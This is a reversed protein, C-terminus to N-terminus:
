AAGDRFPGQRDASWPLEVGGDAAIAAALGDDPSAGLFDGLEFVILDTREVFDAVGFTAVEAREIAAYM